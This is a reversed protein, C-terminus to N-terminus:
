LDSRQPHRELWSKLYAAEAPNIEEDALLGECLRLLDQYVERNTPSSGFGFSPRALPLGIRIEYKM